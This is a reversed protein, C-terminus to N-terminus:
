IFIRNGERVERNNRKDKGATGDEVGGEYTLNKLTHIPMIELYNIYMNKVQEYLMIDM